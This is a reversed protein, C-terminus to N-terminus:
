YIFSNIYYIGHVDNYLAEYNWREFMKHLPGQKAVYKVSTQCLYTMVYM